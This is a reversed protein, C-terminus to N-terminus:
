LNKIVSEDIDYKFLPKRASVIGGTKISNLIFKADEVSIKYIEIIEPYKKIRAALKINGLGEERKAQDFISIIIEQITEM